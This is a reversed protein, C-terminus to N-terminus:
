IKIHLATKALDFLRDPAIGILVVALGCLSLSVVHVLPIEIQPHTQVGEAEEHFFMLLIPRLYYYASVVSTLVAFVALLIAEQGVAQSIIGYKGAFGATPPLGMLSLLFLSLLSAIIPHRKGLGKIDSLDSAERKDQTLLSLVAFSGLSAVSYTMLYFLVSIFASTKDQSLLSVYLGLMIFGAHGISSYALMRKLNRQVIAVTSGIVLSGVISIVFFLKIGSSSFIELSSVMRMLFGILTMKVGTAMFGTVPAPAGEYVDPAWFQFPFVAIKFFLGTLIFCIAVQPLFELGTITPAIKIASLDLTAFSAYYIACGYLFIASAVGGQVFYKLSAENSKINKKHSGVLVYIALSLTELAIFAILLNQTATFLMMGFTAFLILSVYESTLSQIKQTYGLGNLLSILGIIGISFVFFLNLPDGVIFHSVIPKDLSSYWQSFAYSISLLLTAVGTSYVLASFKKGGFADLLLCLTAGGAVIWLALGSYLLSTLTELWGNM